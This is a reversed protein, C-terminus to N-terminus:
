HKVEKVRANGFKYYSCHKTALEEKKYRLAHKINNSWKMNPYKKRDVRYIKQRNKSTAEIIWM